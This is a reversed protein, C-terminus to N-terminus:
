AVAPSCKPWGAWQSVKRDLLKQVRHVLDVPDAPKDIFDDVPLYEKNNSMTFGFGPHKVNVSTVMLIPIPALIEDQKMQIAYDFGHTKGERGFMVDLLIVDPRERRALQIGEEPSYASLMEAKLPELALKMAEVLDIDDDIILITKQEPV